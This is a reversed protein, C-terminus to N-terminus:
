GATCHGATLVVTPAILAGSCFGVVEGGVDLTLLGVYPHRNGDLQGHTIASAFPASGLAISLITGDPGFKLGRPNNLGMAFVTVNESQASLGPVFCLGVAVDHADVQEAV